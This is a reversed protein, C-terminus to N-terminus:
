VAMVRDDRGAIVGRLRQGPHEAGARGAAVGSGVVQPQEALGDLGRGGGQAATWARGRARRRFTMTGQAPAPALWSSPAGRPASNYQGRLPIIVVYAFM